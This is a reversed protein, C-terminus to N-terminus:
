LRNNGAVRVCLTDDGISDAEPFHRGLAIDGGRLSFLNTSSSSSANSQHLAFKFNNSCLRKERDITVKEETYEERGGVCADGLVYNKSV